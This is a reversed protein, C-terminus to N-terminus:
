RAASSALDDVYRQMTRTHGFVYRALVRFLPPRVVGDERIHVRTQGADVPTLTITWWGGFPLTDTDITSRFLRDPVTEEFAFPIAGNGGHEVYRIRAGETAVPEIRQVDRRWAPHEAITRVRHAVRAVPLPVVQDVEARHAVPLRRGIIWLTVGVAALAGGTVLLLRGITM